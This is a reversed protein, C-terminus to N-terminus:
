PLISKAFPLLCCLVWANCVSVAARTFLLWSSFLHFNTSMCVTCSHCESADDSRLLLFLYPDNM